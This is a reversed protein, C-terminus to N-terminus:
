SAWSRAFIRCIPASGISRSSILWVVTEAVSPLLREVLAQLGPDDPEGPRGRGARRSGSGRGSRRRDAQADVPDEEEGQDLQDRDGQGQRADRAQDQSDPHRGVGVDDDELSYLLLHPGPSRHRARDGGAVPAPMAVIMSAFTIVRIVANMRKTSAVAPTLPNANVRPTPVITESNVATTKVWANRPESPRERSRREGLASPALPSPM